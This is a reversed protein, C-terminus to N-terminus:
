LEAKGTAVLLADLLQSNPPNHFNGGHSELHHKRCLFYVLLPQSYDAHHIQSAPNGCAECPKREIWGLGIAGHTVQRCYQKLANKKSYRKAAVASGGRWNHHSEGKSYKMNAAISCKHSCFKGRGLNFDGIAVVRPKGCNQCRTKVCTKVFTGTGVKLVEVDSSIAKAKAIAGTARNRQFRKSYRTKM